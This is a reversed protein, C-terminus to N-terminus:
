SLVQLDALEELEKDKVLQNFVDDMGTIEDFQHIMDTFQERIFLSVADRQDDHLTREIVEQESVPQRTGSGFVIDFVPPYDSEDYGDQELIMKIYDKVTPNFPLMDRLFSVETIAWAAEEVEVPDFVDFGPEGGALTNCINMFAGIDQFFADTTIAVQAAAVRDMVSSSPEAGFEDRIELYITVPDWEYVDEGFSKRIIAMAVTALTADTELAEKAEVRYSM